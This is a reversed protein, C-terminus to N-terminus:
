PCGGHNGRGFEPLDSGISGFERCNPIPAGTITDEPVTLTFTVQKWSAPTMQLEVPTSLGLAVKVGQVFPLYSGNPSYAFVQHEGYAPLALPYITFSGNADTIAQYGECFVLIDSLPNGTDAHVVKGTIYAPNAPTEIKEDFGAIQDYVAGPSSIVYLRTEVPEHLYNYEILRSGNMVKEYRYLVTSGIPASYYAAYQNAEETAVMPIRTQNYPIGTVEDVIVLELSEGAELVEPSHVLFVVQAKEEAEPKLLAGVQGGNKPLTCATLLFVFLLFVIILRGIKM